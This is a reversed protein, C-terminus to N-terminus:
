APVGKRAAYFNQVISEMQALDDFFQPNANVRLTQSPMVKLQALSGLAGTTPPASRFDFLMAKLWARLASPLVKGLWAKFVPRLGQNGSPVKLEGVYLSIAHEVVQAALEPQTTEMESLQTSIMQVFQYHEHKLQPSRWWEEFSLGRNYGLSNVPANETSRMWYVEDVSTLNGRAYTALAQQIEGAYPSSWAGHQGWSRRWVDSKLVAYCTAAVYNSMAADMRQAAQAARVEYKWHPYGTLYSLTHNDADVFFGLSQGICGIASPDSELKELARQLGSALLFEDDGSMVAHSTALMSGALCMREAFSVFSHVYTINGTKAIKARLDDDLATQSGDLLLISAHSDKWYIAQRLLFEQRGYSPIVVTLDALSTGARQTAVENVDMAAIFWKRLSTRSQRSSADDKTM